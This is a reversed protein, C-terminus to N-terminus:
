KGILKTNCQRGHHSSSRNGKRRGKRLRANMSGKCGPMMFKSSLLSGKLYADLVDEPQGSIGSVVDIGSAMLRRLFPRSIAGCILIDVGAAQIRLCKRLVGQEDLLMEFQSATDQNESDVILLRSATDLVPSM